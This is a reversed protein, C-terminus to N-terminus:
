FGRRLQAQAGALGARAIENDPELEVARRYDAAAMAYERQGMRVGGRYILMAAYNPNIKEAVALADLAEQWRSRKAYVMGILSHVHATRDLAAAARLKELAQEPQNLCDLALAWDILLGYTPAKLRAARGYEAVSEACRQAEYYAYALQFRPRAKNPAKAVADQWLAIRDTWVYNRRYAAVGYVLAVAALAAALRRYDVRVRRLFELAILILGIMSLYMRREAVPDSIPVFSSTPAMLILFALWGYSALPFRRRWGWAAVTISALAALGFIAGHEVATRSIPFDYDLTQGTPFLFLRLYVFLARCQTFFYQYWTFDKISFGANDGRRLLLEWIFALGLAAGIAMPAYLRWNRRIGRFSFGPNWWYDTLLLLAPLVLTHEKSGLAALFLALVGAATGWSVEERRRLLFVALAGLFFMVSLNESRSAVYAVSETQAPHLLFLAAGFGALVNRLRQETGALQLLRRAIFFILVGNISHFLVNLVHYSLTADGSLRFNVWYTFMLLPRVGMVWAKLEHPFYPLRFPLYDDDFIFPGHLVPAYVQFALFLAAFAGLAYPWLRRGPEPALTAPAAAAKKKVKAGM